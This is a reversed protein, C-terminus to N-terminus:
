NDGDSSLGGTVFPKKRIYNQAESQRVDVGEWYEKLLVGLKDGSVDTVKNEGGMALGAKLENRRRQVESLQRDVIEEDTLTSKLDSGRVGEFADGLVGGGPLKKLTDGKAERIEASLVEHRPIRFEVYFERVYSEEALAQMWGIRDDMYNSLLVNSQIDPDSARERYREVADTPDFQRMPMFLKYKGEAETNLWNTLQMAASEKESDTATDLNIGSLEVAGVMVGDTRLVAGEHPFIKEVKTLRRTDPNSTAPVGNRDLGGDTAIIKRIENPRKNYARYNKVWQTLSMHNPKIILFLAGALLSLVVMVITIWGQEPSVLRSTLFLVPVTPGWAVVADTIEVTGVLPADDLLTDTGGLNRPIRKEIPKLM